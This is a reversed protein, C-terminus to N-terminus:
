KTLKLEREIQEILQLRQMRPTQLKYTLRCGPKSSLPMARPCRFSPPEKQAAEVRARAAKCKHGKRLVTSTRLKTVLM